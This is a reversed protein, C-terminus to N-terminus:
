LTEDGYFKSKHKLLERFPLMTPTLNFAYSVHDILGFFSRVGTINTPSLFERIGELLKQTSRYGTSSIDFGTFEVNDKTFHFKDLNFVIGKDFIYLLTGFHLRWMTMMYSLIM